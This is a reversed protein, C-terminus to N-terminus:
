KGYKYEFFRRHVKKKYSRGIPLSTKDDLIVHNNRIGDVYALNVMVSKHIRIIDSKVLRQQMSKLTKAFLLTESNLYVRVYNSESHLYRIASEPITGESCCRKFVIVNEHSAPLMNIRLNQKFGNKSGIQNLIVVIQALTQLKQYLWVNILPFWKGDLFLFIFPSGRYTDIEEASSFVHFEVINGTVKIMERCMKVIAREMCEDQSCIGIKYM